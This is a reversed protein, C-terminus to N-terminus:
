RKGRCPWSPSSSAQTQPAGESIGAAGIGGAIQGFRLLIM